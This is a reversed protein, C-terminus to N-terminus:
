GKVLQSIVSDLMEFPYVGASNFAVQGNKDLIYLAPISKVGFESGVEAKSLSVPAETRSIIRSSERAGSRLTMMTVWSWRMKLYASRMASISSPRMVRTCSSGDVMSM